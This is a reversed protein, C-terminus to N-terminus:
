CVLGGAGELRSQDVLKYDFVFMIIGLKKAELFYVRHFNCHDLGVFAINSQFQVVVLHGLGDFIELFKGVIAEVIAKREV